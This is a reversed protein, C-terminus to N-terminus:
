KILEVSEYHCEIAVKCNSLHLTFTGKARNRGVITAVQRPDSQNNCFVCKKPTPLRLSDFEEKTM